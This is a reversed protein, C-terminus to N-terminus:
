RKKFHGRLGEIEEITLDRAEGAALDGLLVPGIRVRKLRKVSLGFHEFVRRIERNKGEVLVVRARAPGLRLASEAKFFDGGAWVGREFARLADDAFPAATEVIYEKEIKSSPHAVKLAFEGDNTFILAGESRMDLRGVNYLREPYLGAILSAATARGKEDLLTSVYGAPKNLLAYRMKEEIYIRKGDLRVEDCKQIRFGRETVREGNVLVRGEEIIKACTRRSSVGAHSLFVQLRMGCKENQGAEEDAIAADGADQSFLPPRAKDQFSM